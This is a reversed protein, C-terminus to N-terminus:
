VAVGKKFKAHLVGLNVGYTKGDFTYHLTRQVRRVYYSVGIKNGDNDLIDLTMPCSNKTFQSVIIRAKV